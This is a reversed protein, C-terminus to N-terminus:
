PQGSVILYPDKPFVLEGRKLILDYIKFHYYICLLESLCYINIKLIITFVLVEYLLVICINIM